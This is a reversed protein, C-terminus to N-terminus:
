YPHGARRLRPCAERRKEKRRHRRDERRRRHGADGPRPAVPTPPPRPDPRDEHARHKAPHRHRRRREEDLGDREGPQHYDEAHPKHRDDQGSPPQGPAEPPHPRLSGHEDPPRALGLPELRQQAGVGLRGEGEDAVHGGTLLVARANPRRLRSRRGPQRPEARDAAEAVDDAEAAGVVDDEGRARERVHGDEAEHVAQAVQRHAARHPGLVAVVEDALGGDLVEPRRGEDRRVLRQHAEAARWGVPRELPGHRGGPEEQM